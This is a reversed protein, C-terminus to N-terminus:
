PSVTPKAICSLESGTRILIAGDVFAVGYVEDDKTVPLSSEGLVHVDDADGDLVLTKGDKGFFYLHNGAAVPSAWCSTGLRHKWLEQGDTANLCSIAGARNVFYVRDRYVLPSGFSSTGAKWTVRSNGVDGKGGLKIAMSGDSASSGIIMHDKYLSPSAVTNKKVDKLFWQQHGTAADLAEVTGNSSILLQSKGYVDALLPTSWSVGKERDQKWLTDGSGTDLALVYSPGDHAILLYLRNGAIVPSSGVGHNGKFEGYEDTLSRRWVVDGQHNFKGLDGSGFFIYVGSYDVAPTPAARAIMRTYKLKLSADLRVQWLIQGSKLALCLLLLPEKADADVSTIYIRDKWVVPSSQGFGPLVTQWRMNESKSWKLPYAGQFAHSSGDGRFGAWSHSRPYQPTISTVQAHTSSWHSLVVCLLVVKTAMIRKRPFFAM